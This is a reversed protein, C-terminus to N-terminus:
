VAAVEVRLIEFMRDLLAHGVDQPGSARGGEGVLVHTILCSAAPDMSLLSFYDECLAYYINCPDGNM